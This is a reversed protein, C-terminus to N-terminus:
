DEDRSRLLAEGAMRAMERPDSLHWDVMKGLQKKIRNLDYLNDVHLQIVAGEPMNYIYGCFQSHDGGEIGRSLRMMEQKFDDVSYAAGDEKKTGMEVFLDILPALIKDPLVKVADMEQLIQAQAAEDDKALELQRNLEKLQHVQSELVQRIYPVAHRSKWFNDAISVQMEFSIGNAEMIPILYSVMFNLESNKGPDPVGKVKPAKKEVLWEAISSYETYRLYGKKQFEQAIRLHVQGVVDALTTLRDFAIDHAEAMQRAQAELDSRLLQTIRFEEDAINHLYDLYLHEPQEDPKKGPIFDTDSMMRTRARSRARALIAGGYASKIVSTYVLADMSVGQERAAEELDLAFIDDISGNNTM